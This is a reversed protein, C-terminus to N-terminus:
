GITPIIAPYIVLSYLEDKLNNLETLLYNTYQQARLTENLLGEGTIELDSKVNTSTPENKSIILRLEQLECLTQKLRSNIEEQTNKINELTM